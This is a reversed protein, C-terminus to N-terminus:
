CSLQPKKVRKRRSSLNWTLTAVGVRRLAANVTKEGAVDDEGLRSERLRNGACCGEHVTCSLVWVVVEFGVWFASKCSSGTPDPDLM